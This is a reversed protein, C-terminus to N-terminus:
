EELYNKNEYINYFSFKMLWNSNSMTIRHVFFFALCLKVGNSNQLNFSSWRHMSGKSMGCWFRNRCVADLKRMSHNIRIKFLKHYNCSSVSAGVRHGYYVSIDSFWLELETSARLQLELDTSAQLWRFIVFYECRCLVAPVVKSYTQSM